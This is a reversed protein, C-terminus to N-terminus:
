AKPHTDLLVPPCTEYFDLIVALKPDRVRRLIEHTTRYVLAEEARREEEGAEFLHAFQEFRVLHVLEHTLIYVLLQELGFIGNSRDLADLICPDQLCVRFFNSPTREHGPGPRLRVYRVLKALAEDTREQSLLEGRTAIEYAYRDPGFRALKFHDGTLEEARTCAADVVKKEQNTFVRAM